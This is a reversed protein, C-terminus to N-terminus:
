LCRRRGGYRTPASSTKPANYLYKVIAEPERAVGSGIRDGAVDNHRRGHGASELAKFCLREIGRSAIAATATEKEKTPGKFAKVSVVEGGVRQSTKM